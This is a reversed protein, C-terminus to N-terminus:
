SSGVWKLAINTSIDAAPFLPRFGSVLSSRLNTSVADCGIIIRFKLALRLDPYTRQPYPPPATHNTQTYEARHGSRLCEVFLCQTYFCLWDFSLIVTVPLIEFYICLSHCLVLMNLDPLCEINM